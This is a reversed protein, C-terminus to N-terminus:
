CASPSAEGVVVPSWESTHAKFYSYVVRGSGDGAASTKLLEAAALIVPPSPAHQQQGGGGSELDPAAPAAVWVHRAAAVAPGRLEVVLFHHGRRTAQRTDGAEAGRSADGRSCPQAGGAVDADGAGAAAARAAAAAAPFHRVRPVVAANLYVTGTRPDVHALDRHGGGKLTHHMHGFLVLAPARGAAALREIAEQLDPDGHDAEPEQWDVGCPSSRLEGLGTPGNHAALVLTAGEPQALATSVVRAASDAFSRVGYHRAYFESVDDWRRGGKSFPRAGVVSIGAGPFHRASFGVHDAGLAQLQAPVGGTVGGSLARLTSSMLAMRVARQRGRPTLSFWADHNGLIVAKPHPLSAIRELLEVNENGFDGVFVAVDAGLSALAAASDDDWQEHVDGIVVLTV